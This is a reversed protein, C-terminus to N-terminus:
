KNLRARVILRQKVAGPPDCTTLTLAKYDTAAVVSWDDKASIFVEEVEYIYTKKLHTIVIPDGKKLKHVNRFWSGYINRHGAIAVNGAEGPLAGDPYLGPGLRLDKSEVGKVVAAKVKIKPISITFIAPIKQAAKPPEKAEPKPTDQAPQLVPAPLEKPDTPTTPELRRIVPDEELVVEKEVEELSAQLLHQQYSSYGYAFLPTFLLCIGIIVLARSLKKM